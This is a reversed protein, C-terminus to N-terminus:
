VLIDITGGLLRENGNLTPASSGARSAVNDNGGADPTKEMRAPPLASQRVNNAFYSAGSSVSSISM